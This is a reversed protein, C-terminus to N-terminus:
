GEKLVHHFVAATTPRQGTHGRAVPSLGCWRRVRVRNPPLQGLASMRRGPLAAHFRYFVGLFIIRQATITREVPPARVEYSEYRSASEPCTHRRGGERM